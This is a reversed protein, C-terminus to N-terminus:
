LRSRFVSIRRAYWSRELRRPRSRVKPTARWVTDAQNFFLGHNAAMPCWTPVRGVPHHTPAPRVTTTQGICPWRKSPRPQATGGYGVPPTKTQRRGYRLCNGFARPRYGPLRGGSGYRCRSKAPRGSPTQHFGGSLRCPFRPFRVCRVSSCYAGGVGRVTRGCIKTTKWFFSNGGYLM